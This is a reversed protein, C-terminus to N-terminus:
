EDHYGKFTKIYKYIFFNKADKQIVGDIKVRAWYGRVELVEVIHIPEDIFPDPNYWQIHYIEGASPLGFVNRRM